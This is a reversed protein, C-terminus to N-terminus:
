CPLHMRAGFSSSISDPAHSYYTLPPLVPLLDHTPFVTIHCSRSLTRFSIGPSAPIRIYFEHRIQNTKRTVLLLDQVGEGCVSRVYNHNGTHGSNPLCQVQVRFSRGAGRMTFALLSRCRHGQRHSHSPNTLSQPRLAFSGYTRLVGHSAAMVFWLM